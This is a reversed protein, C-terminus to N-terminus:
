ADFHMPDSVLLPLFTSVGLRHLTWRRPDGERVDIEVLDERPDSIHNFGHRARALEKGQDCMGALTVATSCTSCNAIHVAARDSCVSCIPCIMGSHQGWDMGCVACETNIPFTSRDVNVAHDIERNSLM